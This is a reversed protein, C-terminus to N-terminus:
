SISQGQDQPKRVCRRDMNHKRLTGIEFRALNGRFGYSLFAVVSYSVPTLNPNQTIIFSYFDFYLAFRSFRTYKICIFIIEM